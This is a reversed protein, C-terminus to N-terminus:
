RGREKGRRLKVRNVRPAIFAEHTRRIFADHCPRCRVKMGPVGPSPLVTERTGYLGGCDSCKHLTM